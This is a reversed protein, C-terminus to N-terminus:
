TEGHIGQKIQARCPRAVGLGFALISWKEHQALASLMLHNNVGHLWPAQVLM